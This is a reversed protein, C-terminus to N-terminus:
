ALAELIHQLLMKAKKESFRMDKLMADEDNWLNWYLKDNCGEKTESIPKSEDEKEEAGERDAEAENEMKVLHEQIAEDSKFMWEHYVCRKVVVASQQSDSTGSSSSRRPADMVCMWTDHYGQLAAAFHRDLSCGPEAALDSTMDDLITRVVRSSMRYVPIQLSLHLLALYLESPLRRAHKNPQLAPNLEQFMPIAMESFSPRPSISITSVTGIESPEITSSTATSCTLPPSTGLFQSAVGAKSTRTTPSSALTVLSPLHRIPSVNRMDSYIEFALDMLPGLTMPQSRNLSLSSSRRHHKLVETTREQQAPPPLQDPNHVVNLVADYVAKIVCTMVFPDRLLHHCHSDSRMSSYVKFAKLYRSPVEPSHNAVILIDHFFRALPSTVPAGQGAGANGHSGNHGHAQSFSPGTSKSLSLNPNLMAKNYLVWARAEWLEPDTSQLADLTGEGQTTEPFYMDRSTINPSGPLEPAIGGHGLFARRCLRMAIKITEGDELTPGMREYVNKWGFEFQKHVICEELMGNDLVTLHRNAHIRSPLASTAASSPQSTGDESARSTFKLSSLFSFTGKTAIQQTPAPAVVSTNINAPKGSPWATAGSTTRQHGQGSPSRRHSAPSSPFQSSPTRQHSSSNSSAVSVSRQHFSRRPPSMQQDQLQELAQTTLLNGQAEAANTMREYQAKIDEWKLADQELRYWTRIKEESDGGPQSVSFQVYKGLVVEADQIRRPKAFLHCTIIARYIPGTWNTPEIQHICEFGEDFKGIGMLYRTMSLHSAASFHYGAQQTANYFQTYLSEASMLGQQATEKGLGEVVSPDCMIELIDAYIGAVKAKFERAMECPDDGNVEQAPKEQLVTLVSLIAVYSLEMDRDVSLCKLAITAVTESAIDWAPIEPEAVPAQANASELVTVELPGQSSEETEEHKPKKDLPEQSPEEVKEDNPVRNLPEQSPEEVNEDKPTKDLPEQSSEEVEEDKSTEKLPEQPPETTEEDRPRERLPEKLPEQSPETAEEDRPQERVPEESPGEAKEDRPQDKSPEQSPEEAEDGNLQEKLTNPELEPSPEHVQPSFSECAKIGGALSNKTNETSGTGNEAAWINEEEEEEEEEEEPIATSNEITTMTTTLAKNRKVAERRKQNKKRSARQGM